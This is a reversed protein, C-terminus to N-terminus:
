KLLLCPVHVHSLTPLVPETSSIQIHFFNGHKQHPYSGSASQSETVAAIKQKWLVHCLRFGDSLRKRDCTRIRLGETGGTWSLPRTLALRTAPKLGCQPPFCYDALRLDGIRPRVEKPLYTERGEPFNQCPTFGHWGMQLVWLRWDKGLRPLGIWRTRGKVELCTVARHTRGQTCVTDISKLKNCSFILLQAPFTKSEQFFGQLVQLSDMLVLPLISYVNMWESILLNHWVKKIFEFVM